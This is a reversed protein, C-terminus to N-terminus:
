ASLPTRAALYAVRIMPSVRAPVAPPGVVAPMTGDLPIAELSLEPQGFEDTSGSILTGDTLNCKYLVVHLDGIGQDLDSIKFEVKFYPTSNDGTLVWEASVDGSDTIAGGLITKLVDLSLKGYTADLEFRDIRGKKALVRADGKLEATAFNPTTSVEAIGPVDVAAGYTPASGVVDTLLPYVKFDHVDYLVSEHAVPM